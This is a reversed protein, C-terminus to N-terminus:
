SIPLSPLRRSGYVHFDTVQRDAIEKQLSEIAMRLDRVEGRHAELQEIRDMELKERQERMERGLRDRERIMEEM